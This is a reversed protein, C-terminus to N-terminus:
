RNKKNRLSNNAINKELTDFITKKFNEWELIDERKPCSAYGKIKRQYEEFGNYMIDFASTEM